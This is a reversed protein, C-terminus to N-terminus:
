RNEIIKWPLRVAVQEVPNSRTYKHYYLNNHKIDMLDIFTRFSSNIVHVEEAHEILFATDFISINPYDTISIIRIDSNILHRKITRDEDKNWKDEHLFVYRENNKLGLIDYYIQKERLFNRKLYFNDWKKNFSVRALNYWFRDFVLNEDLPEPHKPNKYWPSVQEFWWQSSIIAGYENEPFLETTFQVNPISSFLREINSLDCIELNVYLLIEDYNLSYEKIFGYCICLDGIRNHTYIKM